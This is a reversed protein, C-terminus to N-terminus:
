SLFSRLRSSHSRSSLSNSARSSPMSCPTTRRSRPQFRRHERRLGRKRCCSLRCRRFSSRGACVGSIVCPVSPDQKPPRAPIHPPSAVCGCPSPARLQDVRLSLRPLRPAWRQRPDRGRVTSSLHGILASDGLDTVYFNHSVKLFRTNMQQARALHTLSQLWVAHVGRLTHSMPVSKERGRYGLWRRRM